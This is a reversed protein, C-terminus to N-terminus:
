FLALSFEGKELQLWVEPSIRRTHWLDHHVTGPLTNDVM